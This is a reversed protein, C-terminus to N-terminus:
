YALKKYKMALRTNGLKSAKGVILQAVDKRTTDIAYALLLMNVGAEHYDRGKQTQGESDYGDGYYFAQQGLSSLDQATVQKIALSDQPENIASLRFSKRLDKYGGEMDNTGIRSLGLERYNAALDLETKNSATKISAEFWKIAQPFDDLLYYSHGIAARAVPHRPDLVLTERFKLIAKRNFSAAESTDATAHINTAQM